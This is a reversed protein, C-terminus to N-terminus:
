LVDIIAGTIRGEPNREITAKLRKPRAPEPTAAAQAMANAAQVMKDAADALAAHARDLAAADAPVPEPKAQPRRGALAELEARSEVKRM